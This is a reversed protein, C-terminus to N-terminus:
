LTTCAPQILVPLTRTSFRVFTVATDHPSLTTAERAVLTMVEGVVDQCLNPVVLHSIDQASMDGLSPSNHHVIAVDFGAAVVRSKTDEGVALLVCKKRKPRGSQTSGGHEKDAPAVANTGHPEKAHLAAPPSAAVTVPSSPASSPLSTLLSEHSSDGTQGWCLGPPAPMSNPARERARPPACVDIAPPPPPPPPAASILAKAM